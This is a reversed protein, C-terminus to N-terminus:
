LFLVSLMTMIDDIAMRNGLVIMNSGFAMTVITKCIDCHGNFIQKKCLLDLILKSEIIANMCPEIVESIYLEIEYPLTNDWVRGDTLLLLVLRKCKIVWKRKTAIKDTIYICEDFWCFSDGNLPGIWQANKIAYNDDFAPNVRDDTMLLEVIDIHGNM